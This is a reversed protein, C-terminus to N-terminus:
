PINLFFSIFDVIRGGSVCVKICIFERVLFVPDAGTHTPFAVSVSLQDFLPVSLFLYLVYAGM